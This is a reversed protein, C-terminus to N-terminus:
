NGEETTENDPTEAVPTTPEIELNALTETLRAISVNIGEVQAVLTKRKNILNQM